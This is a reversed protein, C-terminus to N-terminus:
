VEWAPLKEEARVQNIREAVAAQYALESAEVDSDQANAIAEDMTTGYYEMGATECVWVRCGLWGRARYATLTPAVQWEVKVQSLITASM